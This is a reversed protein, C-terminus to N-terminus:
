IKPIGMSMNQFGTYRVDQNRIKENHNSIWSLTYTKGTGLFSKYCNETILDTVLKYKLVAFHVLNPESNWKRIM